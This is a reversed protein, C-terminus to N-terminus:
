FYHNLSILKAHYRKKDEPLYALQKAQELALKAAQPKAMADYVKALSFQPQHLYPARKISEKLYIEALQYRGENFFQEGKKLWTFPNADNAKETQALIKAARDDEGNAKLMTYFNDLVTVSYISNELMFDYLAYAHQPKGIRKYIIAKLNLTEPHLSNKDHAMMVYSYALDINDESLAQAALNHWYMILLDEQSVNGSTHNGSEAFYDIVVSAPRIFVQDEKPAATDYLVSNLHTSLLQIDNNQSYVPSSHVKKYQITVGTLKALSTTLVALSLCNGQQNALSSSANLTAGRYTFHRTQTELYAAVRLYMPKNANSPSNIFAFFAEQQTNNLSFIQAEDIYQRNLGIDTFTPAQPHVTTDISAIDNNFTHYSSTHTCGTLVIAAILSVFTTKKSVSVNQEM